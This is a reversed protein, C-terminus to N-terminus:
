HGRLGRQGVRCTLGIIRGQRNRICSIRHLTREIGARNDGTFEGIRAIIYELDEASIERDSLLLERDVFRAEPRRGLDLVVELLSDGQNAKRLAGEIPSPLVQLLAELDDTIKQQQMNEIEIIHEADSTRRPGGVDQTLCAGARPVAVMAHKVFRARDLYPAFGFGTLAGSLGTEYDRVTAYVPTSHRERDPQALAILRLGQEVLGRLERATLESAGWVRLWHGARGIHAQAAARVEGAPAWMVGQWRDPEWWSLSPLGVDGSVAGEAQQVLRPTSRTYLRQLAWSDQPLQDRFGAPANVAPPALALRYITERTYFSFGADWLCTQEAGGDPISAFIRQLGHSAADHCCHALLKRWLHEASPGVGDAKSLPPAIHLLDAEPRSARKILQVFGASDPEQLVYTAIGRGAWPWPATLAIWLPVQPHTLVHEIALPMSSQQLGRLLPIDGLGFARIM